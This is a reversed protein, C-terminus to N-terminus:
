DRGGGAHARALNATAMANLAEAFGPPEPPLIPGAALVAAFVRERSEDALRRLRAPDVGVLRGGRKVVRGGVLVTQVNAPNAQVVMAGVPEPLPVLNLREGGVVIVDAQKGPTLSGIRSDLRMAEAGYLTAWSLADRVTLDLSAPDDGRANIADNRM